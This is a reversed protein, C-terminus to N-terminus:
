VFKCINQLNGKHIVSIRGQFEEGPKLGQFCESHLQRSYIFTIIIFSTCKRPYNKIKKLHNLKELTTADKYSSATLKLTVLMQPSAVSEYPVLGGNWRQWQRKLKCVREQSFVSVCFVCRHKM